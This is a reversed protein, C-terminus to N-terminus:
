QLTYEKILNSHVEERSNFMLVDIISLWPVFEHSFQKYQLPNSKLFQLKLESMQFDNQNYLDLGGIPNIYVSANLAKCIAKVKQASKLNHDINVESSVVLKTPIGLFNKVEFLSHFIFDFLNTEEFLICKELLGIVENFYPAKRYSEVIRNVMKKRDQQWSESLTRDVVNLYDSDKKITLSIFNDQGNVLIRNRNIWGRKTYQINDYVVFEDVANMLQFYGIYPFFYPQMIAIRM